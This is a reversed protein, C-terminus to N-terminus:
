TQELLRAFNGGLIADRDGASLDAFQVRLFASSFYKLPAGSGFLIRDAGVEELALEIGDASTLQHTEIFIDPANKMVLLSEGLNHNGVGSLIVRAKCAEAIRTILTAAGQREAEVMVIAGTQGAMRLAEAFCADDLSWGQTQPFLAFLRFGQEAREAMEEICRLGGRPDVTGVPLLRPEEAAAQWTVDNGRRSDVFVGVTSLTAARAVAHKDLIECLVAISVDIPRSAWFGFITNVDRIELEPM